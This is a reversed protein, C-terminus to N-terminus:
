NPDLYTLLIMCILTTDVEIKTNVENITCFVFLSCPNTVYDPAALGKSEKLQHAPFSTELMLSKHLVNGIVNYNYDRAFSQATDLQDIM